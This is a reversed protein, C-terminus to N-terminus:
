VSINKDPIMSQSHEKSLTSRSNIRKRDTSKKRLLYYPQFSMNKHKYIKSEIPSFKGNKKNDVSKMPLSKALLM